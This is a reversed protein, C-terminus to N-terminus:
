HDPIWCYCCSLCAHGGGGLRGSRDMDQIMTTCAELCINLDELDLAIGQSTLDKWVRDMETRPFVGIPEGGLDDDDSMIELINAM